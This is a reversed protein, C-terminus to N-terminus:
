LDSLHDVEGTSDGISKPHVGMRDLLAAYLNTLCTGQPYVLHRGPRLSGGHGALLIPLDEHTHRNGDSLGSGYVIMSHDLL